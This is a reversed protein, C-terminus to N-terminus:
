LNDTSRPDGWLNRPSPDSVHVSKKGPRKKFFLGGETHGCMTMREFWTVTAGSWTSQPTNPIVGEFFALVDEVDKFQKRKLQQKM